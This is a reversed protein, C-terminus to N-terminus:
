PVSSRIRPHVTASLNPRRNKKAAPTAAAPASATPEPPVRSGPVAPASVASEVLPGPRLPIDVRVGFRPPESTKPVLESSDPNLGIKSRHSPFPYMYPAVTKSGSTATVAM